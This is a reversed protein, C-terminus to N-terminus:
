NLWEPLEITHEVPWGTAYIGADEAMRIQDLAHRMKRRGYDLVDKGIRFVQVCYPYENEVCVFVVEDVPLGEEELVQKYFACQLPYSLAFFQKEFGGRYPSASLTTKLDILRATSPSYWDPRCRLELGTDPDKNFISYEKMADAANLLDMAPGHSAVAQAMADAKDYDAETLLTKGLRKADILMNKWKNGRRDEPGRIVLNKEPEFVMAHTASGIAMAPTEAKPQGKRMRWHRISSLDVAKLDSSSLAPQAHYEENSMSDTIM